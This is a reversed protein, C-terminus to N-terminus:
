RRRRNALTKKSSTKDGAAVFGAASIVVRPRLHCAQWARIQAAVFGAAFIVVRPRLHCAQWARIQAAVFGAAFIFVRPAM